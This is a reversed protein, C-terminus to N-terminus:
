TVVTATLTAAAETILHLKSPHIRIILRRVIRTSLNNRRHITPLHIPIMVTATQSWLCHISIMTTVLHYQHRLFWHHITIGM